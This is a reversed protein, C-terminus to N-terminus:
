QAGLRPAASGVHRLGHRLAPRQHTMGGLNMERLAREADIKSRAYATQPNLPDSEKRAAGPAFGYVSCSSAFVFHKVGAAVSMEALRVVSSNNM